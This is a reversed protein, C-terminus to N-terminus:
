KGKCEAVVLCTRAETRKLISQVIEDLKQKGAQIEADSPRWDLQRMRAAKREMRRDRLRRTEAALDAASPRGLGSKARDTIAEIADDYESLMLLDHWAEVTPKDIIQDQWIGKVRLIILTM